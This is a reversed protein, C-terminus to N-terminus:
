SGNLEKAPYSGLIKLSSTHRLIGGLAARVNEDDEHGEFDVFFRYHWAINQRPRSELKTMSIGNKDLENLVRNLAGPKNDNRTVFIISTKNRKGRPTDERGIIFFRTYNNLSDQLDRALINLGYLEAALESSIAATDPEKLEAVEQAAGATDLHNVEEIGMRYLTAQCQALAQWHSKAKKVDELKVGDPAVLCHRVRVIEEGQVRFDHHSLTDYATSVTGAVSNEVPLMINTVEGHHLAMFMDNFSKCPLTQIDKGFYQRCAQQSYAGPVGQFAVIKTM